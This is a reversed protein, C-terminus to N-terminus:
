VTANRMAREDKPGSCDTGSGVVIRPKAPIPKAKALPLSRLCVAPSYDYCLAIALVLM